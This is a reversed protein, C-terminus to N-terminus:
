LFICLQLDSELSPRCMPRIVRLSHILPTLYIYKVLVAGPHERSEDQPPIAREKHHPPNPPIRRHM